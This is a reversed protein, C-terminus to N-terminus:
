KISATVTNAPKGDFSIVINVLGRGALSKPLPGLNIVDEGQYIGTAAFAAVPVNEGGVTATAQSAGRFGTGYLSLFVQDGPPGLDVPVPQSRNALDFLYAFSQAGGTSYRLAVGAALGSGTSDASYLGPALREINFSSTIIAGTSTTLKATASGLATGAPMLYALANTTVYYLPAPRTVGLSDTIALTVGGLTLPWPGDPAIVLSPAIAQAEGFAIMEPALTGPVFSASNKNAFRQANNLVTAVAGNGGAIVLDPAGDRNVDIVSMAAPDTAGNFHTEASFTGDGNGQFYTMDTATCCHTIVLDAKGDRNFDRIAVQTPGYDTSVINPARFTGDGNGLSVGMFYNVGSGQAVTVIDPRGDGNVDGIAVNIPNTSVAFSSAFQFSGNGTNLLVYVAGAVSPTDFPAGSDAVILDPKGDGNIDGAAVKSPHSGSPYSQQFEFSGNGGGRFVAASGSNVNAVALDLKGDGDFDAVAIGTPGSGGSAFTSPPQFGSGTNLLIAVNDPGRTQYGETVAVDPRGDGNFDGVVADTPYVRPGQQPSLSITTPTDAFRGNDGGAFYYLDSGFLGNIVADTKGDNDFDAAAVFTVNSTNAKSMAVGQFTGNGNGLLINVSKSGPDAGFGRADGLAALIDLKGDHNYDTLVLSTPKYTVAYSFTRQFGGSGNGLYTTVAGDRTDTVALDLKGDGNFDGAALYEPLTGTKLSSVTRFTGNGNGLLITLTNDTATEAIDPVGDANFDAVTLALGGNGAPSAVGPLFTGDGKGLLAYVSSSGDDAVALDLINDGNLDFVAFGLPSHGASYSVAPKYTGNGNNILIAMGGPNNDGLYSVALDDVQDGNFDAAFVNAPTSGVPYKTVSLDTFSSSRILVSINNRDGFTVFAVGWTGAGYRGGTVMQAGRGVNPPGAPAMLLANLGPALLDNITGIASLLSHPNALSYNVQVYPGDIKRFFVVISQFFGTGSVAQISPTVAFPVIVQASDSFLLWKGIFGLIGALLLFSWKRTM